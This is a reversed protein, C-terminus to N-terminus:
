EEKKFLQDITLGCDLAKQIAFADDLYMHQVGRLKRRLTVYAINSKEALKAMNMKKIHCQKLVEFYMCEGYM